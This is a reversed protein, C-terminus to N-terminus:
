KRPHTISTLLEARPDKEQQRQTDMWAGRYTELETSFNMWDKVLLALRPSKDPFFLPSLFFLLALRPLPLGNLDLVIVTSKALPSLIARKRKIREPPFLRRMEMSSAKRIRRYSIKLKLFPTILRLHNDCAQIYASKRITFIFIALFISLGGSVGVVWLTSEPYDSTTEASFGPRFGLGLATVLLVLGIVLLYRWWRNLIHTYLELRLRHGTGAM